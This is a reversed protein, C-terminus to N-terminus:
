WLCNAYKNNERRIVSTIVHYYQSSNHQRCNIVDIDFRSVRLTFALLEHSLSKTAPGVYACCLVACCLCFCVIQRARTTEALPFNEMTCDNHQTINHQAIRSLNLNLRQLRRCSSNSPSCAYM